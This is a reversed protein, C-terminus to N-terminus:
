EQILRLKSFNKQMEDFARKAMDSSPYDYFITNLLLSVKINGKLVFSEEKEM